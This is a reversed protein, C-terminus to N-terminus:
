TRRLRGIRVGCDRGHLRRCGAQGSLARDAEILTGGTALTRLEQVKVGQSRAAKGWANARGNPTANAATEKFEVIFKTYAEGAAVDHVATGQVTAPGAATGDGDEPTAFAPSGAFALTGLAAALSLALIRHRRISSRGM